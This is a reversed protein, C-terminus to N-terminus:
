PHDRTANRGPQELDVGAAELWREAEERSCGKPAGVMEAAKFLEEDFAMATIKGFHLPTVVV